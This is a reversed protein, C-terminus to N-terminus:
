ACIVVKQPLMYVSAVKLSLKSVSLDVINKFSESFLSVDSYITHFHIGEMLMSHTHKTNNIHWNRCSRQLCLVIHGHYGCGCFQTIKGALVCEHAFSQKLLRIIQSTIHIIHNICRLAIALDYKALM